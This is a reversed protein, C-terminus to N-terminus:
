EIEGAVRKALQARENLRENKFNVWQRLWKADALRHRALLQLSLLDNNWADPNTAIMSLVGSFQAISDRSWAPFVKALIAHKVEPMTARSLAALIHEAYREGHESFFACFEVSVPSELPAEADVQIYRVAHPRPVAPSRHIGM